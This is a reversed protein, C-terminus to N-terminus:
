ERIYVKDWTYKRSYLFGDNQLWDLIKSQINDEKMRAYVDDPSDGPQKKEEYIAKLKKKYNKAHSLGLFRNPARDDIGFFPLGNIGVAPISIVQEIIGRYLKRIAPQTKMDTLKDNSAHMMPLSLIEGSYLIFGMYANCRYDSAAGRKLGFWALALAKKPVIWKKLIIKKCFLLRIEIFIEDGYLELDCFLDQAPGTCIYNKKDM